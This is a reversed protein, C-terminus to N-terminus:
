LFARVFRNNQAVVIEIEEDCTLTMCFGLDYIHIGELRHIWRVSSFDDCVRGTKPGKKIEWQPSEESVSFACISSVRYLKDIVLQSLDQDFSGDILKVLYDDEGVRFYFM